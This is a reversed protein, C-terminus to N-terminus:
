ELYSNIAGGTVTISSSGSLPPLTGSFSAILRNTAFTTITVSGVDAGLGGYWSEATGTRIVTMGM